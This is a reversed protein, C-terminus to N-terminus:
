YASVAQRPDAGVSALYGAEDTSVIFRVSEGPHLLTGAVVPEVHGDARRVVLDLASHGKTRTDPPPTPPRGHLYLLLVAAAALLGSSAPLVRHWRRARKRADAALRPVFQEDDFRHADARLAAARASCRACASVHAAAESSSALEGTRLRDLALDSVCADNGSNDHRM